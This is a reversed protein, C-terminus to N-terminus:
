HWGDPVERPFVASLLPGILGRRVFGDLRGASGKPLAGIQKDYEDIKTSLQSIRDRLDGKEDQLQKFDDQWRQMQEILSGSTPIKRKLQRYALIM